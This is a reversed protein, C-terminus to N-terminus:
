TFAYNGCYYYGCSKDKVRMSTNMLRTGLGSGSKIECGIKRWQQSIFDPLPRPVLDLIWKKQHMGLFTGFCSRVHKPLDPYPLISVLKILLFPRPCELRSINPHAWKFKVTLPRDLCALMSIYVRTCHLWALTPSAWARGFSWGELNNGCYNDKDQIVLTHM